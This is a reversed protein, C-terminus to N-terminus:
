RQFIPLYQSNIQLIIAAVATSFADGPGCTNRWCGSEAQSPLLQSRVEPWYFNWLDQNQDSATFFVQSAYYHGYWYFYHGFHEKYIDRLNAKLYRIGAKILEHDYIGTSHLTAVGAATLSFSTRTREKEQYSFGGREPGTRQASRVVYDYANDIVKKNVRIGVNRAARLAMVQCVTISMDSEPSHPEYRWSGHENQSAATLNVALQLKQKVDARHTQGLVEALFLTAFAHSYMRSGEHSIYGDQADVCSLIFDTGREVVDGYPGRGPLHGGSLFAMLALATVGVHPKAAATVNYRDNFKYGLDEIWAGNPAQERALWKLARDVANKVAEDQGYPPAAPATAAAGGATAEVIVDGAVALKPAPVGLEAVVADFAAERAADLSPLDVESAVSAPAASDPATAGRPTSVALTGALALGLGM